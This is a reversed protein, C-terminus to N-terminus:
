CASTWQHFSLALYSLSVPPVAWIHFGVGGSVGGVGMALLMLTLGVLPAQRAVPSGTSLHTSPQSGPSCTFAPDVCVWVGGLMVVLESSTSAVGMFELACAVFMAVACQQREIVNFEVCVSHCPHILV